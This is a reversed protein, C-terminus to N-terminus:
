SLQHVFSIEYVCVRTCVYVCVNRTRASIDWVDLLYSPPRLKSEGIYESQNEFNFQNSSLHVLLTDVPSNSTLAPVTRNDTQLDWALFYRQRSCRM